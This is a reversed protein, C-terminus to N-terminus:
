DKDSEVDDLDHSPRWQTLWPQDIDQFRCFLSSVELRISVDASFALEVAGDEYTVSLLSVIQGARDRNLGKQRAATVNEFCVGCHVREYVKEDGSGSNEEDGREWLFRNAVFLFQQEAPLFKMESLKILSDQLRSSIVTLDETDSVSLRLKRSESM